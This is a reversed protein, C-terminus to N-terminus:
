GIKKDEKPMLLEKIKRRADKNNIQIKIMGTVILNNDEETVDLATMGKFKIDFFGETLMINGIEKSLQEISEFKEVVKKKQETVLVEIAKGIGIGSEKLQNYIDEKVKVSKWESM